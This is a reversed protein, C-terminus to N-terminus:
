FRLTLGAVPGHFTINMDVPGSDYDVEMGRYGISAAFNETFKYGIGGYIDWMFESGGAGALATGELYMAPSVDYTGRFGGVFDVWDRNRDASLNDDGIGVDVGASVNWYRAGALVHLAGQPTSVIEYTAAGTLIAGDFEWGRDTPLIGSTRDSLGAYIFDGYLGFKGYQVAGNAMFFGDLIDFLNGSGSGVDVPGLTRGGPTDVALSGDIFTYWGYVTLSGTVADYQPPAMPELDAAQAAAM